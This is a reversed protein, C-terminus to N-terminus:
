RPGNPPSDVESRLDRVSEKVVGGTVVSAAGSVVVAVTCVDVGSTTLVCSECDDWGPIDCDVVASCDEWACDCVGGDVLADGRVDVGSAETSDCTVVDAAGAVGGDTVGLSSPAVVLVLLGTPFV